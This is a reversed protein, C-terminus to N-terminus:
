CNSLSFQSFFKCNGISKYCYIYFVKEKAAEYKKERKELFRKKIEERLEM